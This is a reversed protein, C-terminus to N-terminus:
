HLVHPAGAAQRTVGVTRDERGERGERRDQRGERGENGESGEGASAHRITDVRPRHAPLWQAWHPYRRLVHFVVFGPVFRWLGPNRSVGREMQRCHREVLWDLRGRLTRGFEPDRIVLNAELNLSLSLPDLNSSGVTSWEDDALAVKAHLPRECYEHIVVGARLLHEYLMRAAIRVIPMDPEGQLILHIRVGRRAANRLDRLLRYGPFFYANAIYVHSRAARIALRYQHEIDTRHHGNDRTVFLAASTGRGADRAPFRWPVWGWPWVFSRIRGRREGGHGSLVNELFRHITAVIPGRVEVAYDQKAMPGFDALHDASYNIGGVFAVEADVVVLKRHMRRFVNRRFGFLKPKPDFVHVRVGAEVLAALFPETLEASGYGDVTLDISVGRRAADILERHLANGVKDEFVIFTEILVQVRARRIADFVRPFFEEGNEVLEARNGEVWGGKM